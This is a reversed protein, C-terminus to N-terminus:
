ISENNVTVFCLLCRFLMCVFIGLVVLTILAIFVQELWQFNPLWSTLKNWIESFSWSLDDKSIEHLVRTQKWIEELDTSIRGSQDVYMCCSTNIVTCVGGQAALLLDLAMRNQLVVQSLSSIEEQQAKIADLTKNELKEIIASINVIAKELESVGLWPIFWRVFSHFATHREILPNNIKRRIRWIHNRLYGRPVVDHVTMSPVVAGLTCTGKWNEPLVKRATDNCLWYWGKGEPVPWSTSNAWSSTTSIDITQNCSTQNGVYTTGTNICDQKGMGKPPNCRQVCVYYSELPVFSSVELELVEEYKQGWSTNEWLNTWPLNAPLPIRILSVGKNGHQPLHTCVWCNTKNIVQSITQILSLHLNEDWVAWGSDSFWVGAIMLIQFVMIKNTWNSHHDM